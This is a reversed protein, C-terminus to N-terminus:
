LRFLVVKKSKFKEQYVSSNLEGRHSGLMTIFDNESRFSENVTPSNNYRKGVACLELSPHNKNNCTIIPRFMETRLIQCAESVGMFLEQMYWVHDNKQMNDGHMVLAIGVPKYGRCVLQRAANSASIRSSTKLDKKLL